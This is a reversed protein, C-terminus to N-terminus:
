HCRRLRQVKAAEFMASLEMLSFDPSFPEVPDSYFDQARFLGGLFSFLLRTKLCKNDKVRLPLQSVM